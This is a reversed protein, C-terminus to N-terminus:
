KQIWLKNNILEAIPREFLINIVISLILISILVLALEVTPSISFFGMMIRLVEIGVYHLM